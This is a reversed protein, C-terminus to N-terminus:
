PIEQRNSIESADSTREPSSGDSAFPRMRPWWLPVASRYARYPEGFRQLLDREEAPRCLIHWSVAGVLAYSIVLWNALYMGVALGQAIGAVAMPNRVFRYPGHVVLKRATQLPLPTGRGQVAMMTASWVGLASALSFAGVGLGQHHPLPLSPIAFHNSLNHIAAPLVFLFFSWFVVMQAFTRLLHRVTSTESAVRFLKM